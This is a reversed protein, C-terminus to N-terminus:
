RVMFLNNTVADINIRVSKVQLYQRIADIGNEQGTGSDKFGGFHVM